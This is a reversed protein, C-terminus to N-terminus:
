EQVVQFHPVPVISSAFSLTHFHIFQKCFYLTMTNETQDTDGRGGPEARLSLCPFSLILSSVLSLSVVTHALFNAIIFLSSM